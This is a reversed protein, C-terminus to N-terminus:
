GSYFKYAVTWALLPRSAGERCSDVGARGASGAGVSPLDTHTQRLPPLCIRSENLAKVQVLLEDLREGRAAIQVLLRDIRALLAAVQHAGDSSPSDIKRRPM